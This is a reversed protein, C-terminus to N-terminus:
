DISAGSPVEVEDRLVTSVFGFSQFAVGIALRILKQTQIHHSFKPFLDLHENQLNYWPIGDKGVRGAETTDFRPDLMYETRSFHFTDVLSMLAAYRQNRHKCQNLHVYDKHRVGHIVYRNVFVALEGRIPQVEGAETLFETHDETQDFLDHWVAIRYHVGYVDDVQRRQEYLWWRAGDLLMRVPRNGSLDMEEADKGSLEGVYGTLNTELKPACCWKGYPDFKYGFFLRKYFEFKSLGEIARQWLHADIKAFVALVSGLTIRCIPDDQQVITDIVGTMASWRALRRSFTPGPEYCFCRLREQCECCHHHSADFSSTLDLSVENRLRGYRGMM